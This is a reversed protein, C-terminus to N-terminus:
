SGSGLQERQRGSQLAEKINTGEFIDDLQKMGAARIAEGQGHGYSCEKVWAEVRDRDPIIGTVYSPNVGGQRFVMFAGAQMGQMFKPLEDEDIRIPKGSSREILYAKTRRVKVEQDSM